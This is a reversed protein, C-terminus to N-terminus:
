KISGNNIIAVSIEGKREEERNAGNAKAKRSYSELESGTIREICIQTSIIAM